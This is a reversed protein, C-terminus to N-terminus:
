SISIPIAARAMRGPDDSTAILRSSREAGINFYVAWMAVSGVFAVVFAALTTPTWALKAFTAGTVLISKGLAIIVFLGCREAM